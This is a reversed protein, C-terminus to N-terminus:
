QCDSVSVMQCDSWRFLFPAFVNACTFLVRRLKRRSKLAMTNRVIQPTIIPINTYTGNKIEEIHDQYQKKANARQENVLSVYNEGFAFDITKGDIQTIVDGVQYPNSYAANWSKIQPVDYGITCLLVWSFIIATIFNMTVGGLLVIIRKWPKQNVFATEKSSVDKDDEEGDFACYGGLPIARLSFKEGTKKSTHSFIAPGFGVSFENIKFKFIKGFIYHGFEHALIMFLLIVVALLIYLVIM